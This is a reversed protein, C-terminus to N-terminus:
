PIGYRSFVCGHQLNSYEPQVEYRKSNLFVSGYSFTANQCEDGIEAGFLDLSVKNWWATGDPDTITEFLEHSLVDATSDVVPGNPSPQAVACGLVNQYPEVTFLVHGIDPFTVSGHYACFVWNNMLDPSYCQTSPTLPPAGFCIDQNPPLYVHYIHHYGTGLLAAGAHVIALINADYLIHPAGTYTILAGTGVTYRNNAFSGVYDDTVDIFDSKGLDSLFSAPNGWTGPTANVYLGHSQATVVTPGAPSPNGLDGPYYGPQPIAPIFSSSASSTQSAPRGASWLAKRNEGSLGLEHFSSLPVPPASSSGGFSTGNSSTNFNINVLSEQASASGVMLLLPVCASIVSRLARL